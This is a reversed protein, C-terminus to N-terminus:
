VQHPEWSVMVTRSIALPCSTSRGQPAMKPKMGFRISHDGAPSLTATAQLPITVIKSVLPVVSDTGM